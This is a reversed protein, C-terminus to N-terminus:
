FWKSSNNLIMIRVQFDITIIKTGIGNKSHWLTKADNDFMNSKAYNVNYDADNSTVTAVESEGYWLKEKGSCSESETWTSVVLFITKLPVKFYVILQIARHQM